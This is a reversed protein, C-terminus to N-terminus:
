GDEDLAFGENLDIDDGYRQNRYKALWPGAGSDWGNRVQDYVAKALRDHLSLYTERMEETVGVEPLLGEQSLPIPYRGWYPIAGEAVHIYNAEPETLDLKDIKAALQALHHTKLEPSLRGSTIHTSDKLVLLGKLLNELAFGTLMVYTRSVSSVMRGEGEGKSDFVYELRIRNTHHQWILEACDRLEDAYDLWAAPSADRVFLQLANSDDAPDEIM